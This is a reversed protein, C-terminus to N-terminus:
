CLGLGGDLPFPFNMPGLDWAKNGLSRPLVPCMKRELFPNVTLESSEERGEGAEGLNGMLNMLSESSM